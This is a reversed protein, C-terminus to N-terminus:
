VIYDVLLFLIQSEDELYFTMNMTDNFKLVIVSPICLGHM